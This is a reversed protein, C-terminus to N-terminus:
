EAALANLYTTFKQGSYDATGEHHFVMQGKKNIVVTTPISNGCMSQPIATVSNFVPLTYHHREMFPLSKSLDNDADVMLFVVNNNGAMSQHLQNISPMEAICPPCWTAWFNIFVVKGRLQALSIPKNNADIFTIDNLPAATLAAASVQPQFLGVQMLGRILWAKASPNFFLLLVAAFFLANLGNKVSFWKTVAQKDM